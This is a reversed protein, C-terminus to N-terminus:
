APELDHERLFQELQPTDFDALLLNGDEILLTPTLRQGSLKKMREFAAPDRSVDVQAFAYGHENLYGAAEMCWPCYPKVFLIWSNQSMPAEPLRAVYACIGTRLVGSFGSRM